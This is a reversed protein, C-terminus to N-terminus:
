KKYDVKLDNDSYIDEGSDRLFEFSGGTEALKYLGQTLAKEEESEFFTIIVKQPTKINIDELLKIKEGDYFGKVNIM